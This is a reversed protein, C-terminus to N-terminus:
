NTVAIRIQAPHDPTVRPEAISPEISVEHVEDITDVDSLEIRRYQSENSSGRSICGAIGATM